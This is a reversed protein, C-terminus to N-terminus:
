VAVKSRKPLPLPIQKSLRIGDIAQQRNPRIDIIDGPTGVHANPGLLATREVNALMQRTIWEAVPPSVGKSLYTLFQSDMKSPWKWNDPFGVIRQYEIQTLPRNNIYFFCGGLVVPAFWEPDLKRPLNVGYLGKTGTIKDVAERNKEVNAFQSVTNVFAGITESNLWGEYDFKTTRFKKNFYHILHTMKPHQQADKENQVIDSMVRYVPKHNLIIRAQERFFMVWVRPRWQPVGFTAANLYVFYHTYRYRKAYEAYVHAFKLLGPVSEMTLAACHNGMSYDMIRKHCEFADTDVGRRSVNNNQNSFAACPPHACVITKRLDDKPWPLADVYKLKPFNLKQAEIGYGCNEYSARIPVGAAKAGLVLSGAYSNIILCDHQM